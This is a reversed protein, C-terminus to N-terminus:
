EMRKANLLTKRGCRDTQPKLSGREKIQERVRRVAAVCYGCYEAIERTSRGQGYLAIIRERVADPIAKMGWYMGVIGILVSCTKHFQELGTGTAAYDYSLLYPAGVATAFSQSLTGTPRATSTLVLAYSGN